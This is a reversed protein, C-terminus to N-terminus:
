AALVRSLRRLHFGIRLLMAVNFGALTAASAWGIVSVTSNQLVFPLFWITASALVMVKWGVVFSLPFYRYLFGKGRSGGNCWYLFLLGLITLVLTLLADFHEWSQIPSASVTLRFSTFQLWDFCIIAFFYAFTKGESIAHAALESRVHKADWIDRHNLPM